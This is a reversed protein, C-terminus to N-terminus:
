RTNWKLEFPNRYVVVDLPMADDVGVRFEEPYLTSWTCNKCQGVPIRVLAPVLPDTPFRSGSISDNLGKLARSVEVSEYFDTGSRIKEREELRQGSHLLRSHLAVYGFFGISIFVIAIMIEVLTFAHRSRHQYRKIM